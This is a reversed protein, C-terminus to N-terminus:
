AVRQAFEVLVGASGDEQPEPKRTLSALATLIEDLAVGDNRIGQTAFGGRYGGGETFSAFSLAGQLNAVADGVQGIARTLDARAQDLAVGAKERLKSENEDCAVNVAFLRRGTLAKAAEYTLRADEVREQHATRNPTGTPLPKGADMAEVRANIDAQEASPTEQELQVLAQDVDAQHRKAELYREIAERVPKVPVLEAPPLRDPNIQIAM